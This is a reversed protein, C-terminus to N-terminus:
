SNYLHGRSVGNELIINHLVIVFCSRTVLLLTKQPSYLLKSVDRCALIFTFIKLYSRLINYFNQSLQMIYELTKYTTLSIKNKM